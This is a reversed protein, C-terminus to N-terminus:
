LWPEAMTRGKALAGLIVTSDPAAPRSPCRAHLPPTTKGLEPRTTM